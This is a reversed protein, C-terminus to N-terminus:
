YRDLIEGYYLKHFDMDGYVEKSVEEDFASADMFQSYLIKCEFHLDCEKIIPSNVKKSKGITLNAAKFKDIDRGSKTGCIEIAESLDVNIPISVTFDKSNNIIDYTYRSKRVAVMMIPRNWIIGMTAWGITMTNLREGDSVTLFAGKPFQNFIENTNGILNMKDKM